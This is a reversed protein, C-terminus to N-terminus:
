RSRVKGPTSPKTQTQRISFIGSILFDLGYEGSHSPLKHLFHSHRKGPPCLNNSRSFTQNRFPFSFYGEKRRIDRGSRSTPRDTGQCKARQRQRHAFFNVVELLDVLYCFCLHAALLHYIDQHHRVAIIICFGCLLGTQTSPFNSSIVSDPFPSTPHYRLARCTLILPEGSFARLSSSANSSAQSHCLSTTM